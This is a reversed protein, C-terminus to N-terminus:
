DFAFAFYEPKRADPDLPLWMTFEKGTGPTRFTGFGAGLARLIGPAADANGLLELALLSDEERYVATLFDLGKYFQAWSGLFRLNEHEQIVSGRPLFERRLRAYEGEDVRYLDPAPGGPTCVFERVGTCRDYGLGAYLRRLGEEQPVLLAAAYGRGRLIQHTDTMLARCLGQNRWGPGTAVAYIYAMPQERCSVDFWYLAAAVEGNETICRCRRRDFATSFFCDLFEESDGFAAQWLARLGPVQSEGPFDIRM